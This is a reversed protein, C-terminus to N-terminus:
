AVSVASLREAIKAPLRVGFHKLFKRIKEGDYQYTVSFSAIGLSRIRGSKQDPQVYVPLDEEHADYIIGVPTDFTIKLFDQKEHYQISYTKKDKMTYSNDKGKM